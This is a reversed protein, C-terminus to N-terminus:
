VREAVLHFCRAVGRYPDQLGALWEAEIVVQPDEAVLTETLHDTFIGVGYWAKIHAGMQALLMRVTQLPPEATPLYAVGAEHGHKLGEVAETWHGQLGARMAIADSNISMVSVFGGRKTSNVLSQLLPLPDEVYLLVSHCCVADFGDGVKELADEGAGEVLTVRSQVLMSEQMLRQRAAELMIPDIDLITVTHGARALLIAQQGHGGGVDLVRAPANSLHTLLARTVVEFRLNGDGRLYAASLAAAHEIWYNRMIKEVSAHHSDM